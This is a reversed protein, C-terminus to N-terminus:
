VMATRARAREKQLKGMQRKITRMEADDPERKKKLNTNVRRKQVEDARHQVMALTPLKFKQAALKKEVLVLYNSLMAEEEVLDVRQRELEKNKKIQNKVAWKSDERQKEILLRLNKNVTMAHNKEEKSHSKKFKMMVVKARQIENLTHILEEQDLSHEGYERELLQQLRSIENQLEFDEKITDKMRKSMPATAIRRQEENKLSKIGREEKFIRIQRKIKTMNENASNTEMIRQRDNAEIQNKLNDVIISLSQKEAEEIKARRVLKLNAKEVFERRKRTEEIKKETIEIEDAIQNVHSTFDDEFRQPLERHLRVLTRLGNRIMGVAEHPNLSKLKNETIQNSLDTSTSNELDKVLKYVLDYTEDLQEIQNQLNLIQQDKEAIDRRMIDTSSRGRRSTDSAFSSQSQILKKIPTKNNAQINLPLPEFTDNENMLEQNQSSVYKNEICPSFSTRM